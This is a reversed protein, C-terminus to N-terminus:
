ARFKRLYKCITRMFVTCVFIFFRRKGGVGAGFHCGEFCCLLAPTEWVQKRERLAGARQMKLAPPPSRPCNKAPGNNASAFAATGRSEPRNMHARLVAALTPLATRHQTSHSPCQQPSCMPRNTNDAIRLVGRPRRGSATPTLSRELAPSDGWNVPWRSNRGHPRCSLRPLPANSHTPSPWPGKRFGLGAAKGAHCSQSRCARIRSARQAALRGDSGTSWLIPPPHRRAQTQRGTPDWPPAKGPGLRPPHTHAHPTLTPQTQATSQCESSVHPAAGVQPYHHGTWQSTSAERKADMATQRESTKQTKKHHCFAASRQVGGGGEVCTCRREALPRVHPESPGTQSPLARSPSVPSAGLAVRLFRGTNTKPVTDIPYHSRLCISHMTAGNPTKKNHFPFPM